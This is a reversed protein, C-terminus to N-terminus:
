KRRDMSLVREEPHVYIKRDKLNILVSYMDVWGHLGFKIFKLKRYRKVEKIVKKDVDQDTIVIGLVVTSM